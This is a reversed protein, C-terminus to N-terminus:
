LKWNRIEISNRELVGIIKGNHAVVRPTKFPAVFSGSRGLEADIRANRSHKKRDDRPTRDKAASDNRKVGRFRFRNEANAIDHLKFGAPAAGRSGTSDSNESVIGPGRDLAAVSEFHFPVFAGRHLFQRCLKLFFEERVGGLRSFNDAVFARRVGNERGTRFLDFRDVLKRESGMSAHLRH